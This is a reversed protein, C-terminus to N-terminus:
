FRFFQSIRDNIYINESTKEPLYKGMVTRITTPDQDGLLASLPITWGKKQWDITTYERHYTLHFAQLEKYPTLRGNIEVGDPRIQIAINQPKHSANRWVAVVAVVILLVTIWSRESSFIFYLILAAAAALMM